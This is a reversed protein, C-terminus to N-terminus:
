AQDCNGVEQQPQFGRRGVPQPNCFGGSNCFQPNINPRSSFTEARRSV